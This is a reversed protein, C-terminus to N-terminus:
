TFVAFIVLNNLSMVYMIDLSLNANNVASSASLASLHLYILKMQTIRKM